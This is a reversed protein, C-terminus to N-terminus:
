TARPRPPVIARVVGRVSVAGPQTAWAFQEGLHLLRPGYRENCRVVHVADTYATGGLDIRLAGTTGPAIERGSELCSGTLSLDLLRVPIQRVLLGRVQRGDRGSIGGQTGISTIMAVSALAIFGALLAYEILDQGADDRVLQRLLTQM